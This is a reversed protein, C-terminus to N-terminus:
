AATDVGGEPHCGDFRLMDYPFEGTGEVQFRVANFMRAPM